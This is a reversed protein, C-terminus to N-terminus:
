QAKTGAAPTTQRQLTELIVQEMLEAPAPRGTWM